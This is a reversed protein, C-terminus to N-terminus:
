IGEVQYSVEGKQGPIVYLRVRRKNKTDEALYCLRNGAMGVHDLIKYHDLYFGKYKGDLLMVSQWVTLRETKVLYDCFALLDDDVLVKQADRVFENRANSVEDDSLLGSSKLCQWFKDIKRSQPVDSM